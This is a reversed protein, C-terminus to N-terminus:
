SGIVWVPGALVLAILPPLALTIPPTSTAPKDIPSAILLTIAVIVVYRAGQGGYWYAVLMSGFLLVAAGVILMSALSTGPTFMVEILVLLTGIFQIALMFLTVQRQSVNMRMRGERGDILKRTSAPVSM